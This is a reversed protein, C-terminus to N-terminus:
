EAAAKKALRQAKQAAKKLRDKAENAKDGDVLERKIVNARVMDEITEADIKLDPFAKRLERRIIAVVPESMAIQAVTFPNFLQSQQHFASIADAALGERALLFLKEMDDESRLNIDPLCIRVVEDWDIPQAFKVKFFRWEVANTLIIWEIGKHAGYNVAQRLHAESLTSGASKVEILFRVVGDTQVALDCYTGRILHESTLEAYKDYGFVEALIDKVLTVTDAESVDRSRQAVAITQFHRLRARVRDTFKKPLKAMTGGLNLFGTM